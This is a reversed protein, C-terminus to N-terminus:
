ECEDGVWRCGICLLQCERRCGRVPLSCFIIGNRVGRKARRLFNRLTNRSLVPVNGLPEIRERQRNEQELLDSIKAEIKHIAERRQETIGVLEELVSDMESSVKLVVEMSSSLRDNYTKMEPPEESM